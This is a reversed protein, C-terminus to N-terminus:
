IKKLVLEAQNKIRKKKKKPICFNGKNLDFISFYYLTPDNFGIKVRRVTEIM